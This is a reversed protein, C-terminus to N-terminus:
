QFTVIPYSVLRSSSFILYLSSNVHQHKRGSPFARPSYLGSTQHQVRVRYFSNISVSAISCSCYKCIAGNLWYCVQKHWYLIHSKFRIWTEWTFGSTFSIGKDSYLTSFWHYSIFQYVKWHCRGLRCAACKIVLIYITSYLFLSLLAFRDSYLLFLWRKHVHVRACWLWLRM